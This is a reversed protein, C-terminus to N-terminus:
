IVYDSSFSIFECLLKFTEYANGIFQVEGFGCLFKKEHRSYSMM